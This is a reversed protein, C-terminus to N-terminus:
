EKVIIEKIKKVYEFILDTNRINNSNCNVSKFSNCYLIIKSDGSLLKAIYSFPVSIEQTVDIQINKSYISNVIVVRLKIQGSKLITSNLGNYLEYRIIQILENNTKQNKQYQSTISKKLDLDETYELKGGIFDSYINTNYKSNFYEEGVTSVRNTTNQLMVRQCLVLCFFIFAILLIFIFTFVISAEVTYSGRLYTKKNKNM